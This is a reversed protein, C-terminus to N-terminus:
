EEIVQVWFPTTFSFLEPQTPWFKAMQLVRSMGMGLEASALELLADVDVNKQSGAETRFSVMGIQASQVSTQTPALSMYSRAMTLYVLGNLKVYSLDASLTPDYPDTTEGLYNQIAAEAEQQVVNISLERDRQLVRQVIDGVLSETNGKLPTSFDSLVGEHDVWQIMFWDNVDLATTCSHSTIYNPYAGIENVTEIVAYPGSEAPAELVFLTTLNTMDPPVFSLHVSPM